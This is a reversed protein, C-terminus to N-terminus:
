PPPPPLPPLTLLVLRKVAPGVGITRVVTNEFASDTDINVVKITGHQNNAVFLRTGDALAAIAVPQVPPNPEQATLEITAVLMPTAVSLVSVSQGLRNTVYAREQSFDGATQVVAVDVPEDGVPVLIPDNPPDTALDLIDVRDQDPNAVFLKTRDLSFAMGVNAFITSSNCDGPFTLWSLVQSCELAINEPDTVDYKSLMIRRWPGSGGGECDICHMPPGMMEEMGGEGFGGQPGLAGGGECLTPQLGGGPTCEVSTVYAKVTSGAAKVRIAYPIGPALPGDDVHWLASGSAPDVNVVSITGNFLGQARAVYARSVGYQDTEVDIARGLGPLLIGGPTIVRHNQVDFGFLRGQVANTDTISKV